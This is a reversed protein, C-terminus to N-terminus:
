MEFLGYYLTACCVNINWKVNLFLQEKFLHSFHSFVSMYMQCLTTKNMQLKILMLNSRIKVHFFLFIPFFPFSPFLPFLFELSLYKNFPNHKVSVFYYSTQYWCLGIVCILLFSDKSDHNRPTCECISLMQRNTDFSIISLPELIFIFYELFGCAFFLVTRSYHMNATLSKLFVSISVLHFSWAFTKFTNM